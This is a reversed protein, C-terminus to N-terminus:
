ALQAVSPRTVLAEYREELSRADEDITKVRPLRRALDDILHPQEILRQLIRRLEDPATPDFLLGSVGEEVLDVIGGMRAGIVPVGTMFAEHIVLPSNEMWLSPVVLVDMQSYVRAVDQRGFAGAFRVPLGEARARVDATYDPFVDPDGFITLEYGDTLRRVADVLVHVGKHWVLTGVYGVRVPRRTPERTLGPMPAFGYDSVLLRDGPIGLREFESAIFPSPAIWLDVSDFLTRAAALRLQIDDATVTVPTAQVTARSVATALGPLRRLVGRAARVLLGAHGTVATVHGFAIQSFFPSERFCTACRATDITKCVHNAARHIRQGGSPCVTSYDHLTAVLPIGRKRAISALDFSLNLFNHVHIVHPQVIDLVAGLTETIAAPRYSIDFSRGHWNNIIEAVPLGEYTRWVVDGHRRSPDYEACVITVAHHAALARCLELVYIESGAQHRPLFDHVAHVIRM